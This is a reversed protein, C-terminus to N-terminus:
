DEFPNYESDRSTQKTRSKAPKKEDEVNSDSNGGLFVFDVVKLSTIQRTNGEKDEYQNFRLNYTLGVLSGKNTYEAFVEAAKGIMDFPFFGAEGKNGAGDVAISNRLVTMDGNKTEITNVENDRVLRGTVTGINISKM